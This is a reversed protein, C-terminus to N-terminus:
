GAGTSQQKQRGQDKPPGPCNTGVVWSLPSITGNVKIFHEGCHSFMVEEEEKEEELHNNNNNAEIPVAPAIYGGEPL